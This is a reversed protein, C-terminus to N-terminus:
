TSSCRRSASSCGSAVQRNSMGVAVFRAVALEQATLRSPDFERRKAPALGCAALEQECRQVYPRARLGRVAGAGGVVAAGGGAAAGGAAVGARPRARDVWAPVAVVTAGVGGGGPRVGGGGGTVAGARGGVAGAGAGAAGGDVGAGCSRRSRARSSSCGRGSWGVSGVLAEGYLDQWPWFGPEDVGDRETLAVVPELARLVAEHDGRAAPVQAQALGAAVVMLEYDGPRAAAATCAGRGCGVGGRRRCWCRRWGRRRGCGTTGRSRWCRCRVSRLLRRRTGHGSAFEAWASWLHSWAAFWVSGARMSEHATGTLGAHM